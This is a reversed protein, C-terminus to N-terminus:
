ERESDVRERSAVCVDAIVTVEVGAVAVSVVSTALSGAV